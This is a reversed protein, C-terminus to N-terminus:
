FEEKFMYLMFVGPIEDPVDEIIRWTYITVEKGQNLFNRNFDNAGNVLKLTEVFEEQLKKIDNQYEVIQETIVPRKNSDLKLEGQEDRDAYKMVSEDVRQKYEAFKPDTDPNYLGAMIENYDKELSKITKLAAYTLSANICNGSIYKNLMEFYQKVELQSMQVKKAVISSKVM